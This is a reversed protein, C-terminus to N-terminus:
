GSCFIINGQFDMSIGINEVGIVELKGSNSAMKWTKEMTCKGWKSVLWPRFGGHDVRYTAPLQQSQGHSAISLKADLAQAPSWQFAPFSGMATGNQQSLELV